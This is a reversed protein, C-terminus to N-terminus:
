ISAHPASFNNRIVDSAPRQHLPPLLPPKQPLFYALTVVQAPKRPSLPKRPHSVKKEFSFCHQSVWSVQDSSCTIM